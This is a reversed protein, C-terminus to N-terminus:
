ACPAGSPRVSGAVIKMLTSKGAGNDGAFGVIENPNIEFDVGRLAEVVGYQKRIEQGTLLAQAAAM